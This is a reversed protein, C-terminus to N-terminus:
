RDNEKEKNKIYNIIIERTVGTPTKYEQKTYKKFKDYLEIPVEIRIAKYDKKM